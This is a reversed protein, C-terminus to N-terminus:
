FTVSSTINVKALESFFSNLMGFKHRAPPTANFQTALPLIRFFFIKSLIQIWGAEPSAPPDKPAAKAKQYM